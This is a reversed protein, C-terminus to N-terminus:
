GCTDGPFRLRQGFLAELEARTAEADVHHVGIMGVAVAGRVNVQLDDVFVCARPPVGLREATLRYIAAEPKRLGVEGSIVVTDFLQAFRARPYDNAWSNSLLATRLGAARAGAVVETMAPACRFGAFMRRLLGAAAPTRGDTTRLRAALAQEFSAPDILGSELAHVPHVQGAPVPEALWDRLVQAFHATEVGDEDAWSALCEALPSTLVGGYDVILARLASTDAQPVRM